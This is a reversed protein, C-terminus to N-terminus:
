IKSSNIGKIKSKNGHDMEKYKTKVDGNMLGNNFNKGDNMERLGTKVDGNMLGNHFKKGDNMERHRTKVDGPMQGKNSNDDLNTNNGYSLEFTVKDIEACFPFDLLFDPLYDYAFVNGKDAEYSPVFCYMYGPLYSLWHSDGTARPLVGNNM